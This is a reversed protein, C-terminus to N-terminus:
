LAGGSSPGARFAAVVESNYLMRTWWQGGVVAGSYDPGLIFTAGAGVNLDGMAPPLWAWGFPELAGGDCVAGDVSLTLVHAAADVVVGLFHAPSAAGNDDSLLRQTCDADTALAVTHGTADTLAVQVARTTGVVTVALTGTNVLTQNEGTPVASHNLLWLGLTAGAMPGEHVAPNPLQPTPFSQGQSGKEFSLALGTTPVGKTVDQALLLTLFDSDSACAHM